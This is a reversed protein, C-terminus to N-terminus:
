SVFRVIDVSEATLLVCEQDLSNRVHRALGECYAISEGDDHKKDDVLTSVIDVSESITQGQDNIWSGLGTTTTTGGFRNALSAVVAGLVKKNDITEGNKTKSPITISIKLM